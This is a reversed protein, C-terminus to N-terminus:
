GFLNCDIRYDIQDIKFFMSYCGHQDARTQGMFELNIIKKLREYETTTIPVNLEEKPSHNITNALIALKNFDPGENIFVCKQKDEITRLDRDTVFAQSDEVFLYYM